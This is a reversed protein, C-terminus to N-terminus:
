DAYASEQLEGGILNSNTKMAAPPSWPSAFVIAGM